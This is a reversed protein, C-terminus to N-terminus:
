SGTTRDLLGLDRARRESSRFIATAGLTVVAGTLLLAILITAGDPASTGTVATWVSGTGGISTPLYPAVAIRVGEVWWTVPNLLGIVQLPPPLVALPFVVGSVLFMAGAFAEPYSWSEQRTQLCVAGIFVGLAIIPVVGLVLSGILLPWDVTAPDIRLGLVIVAFVLAVLTGVAGILLRATGRGVITVLMTAPSVAMYKLMRYRERDDLITWAPGTIGAVLMAWLSSGLIVFTKASEDTAGGVIAVMAYILLLSAIPKVVSYIVFLTPDTWNAEVKWGLLMATRLHRVTDARGAGEARAPDFTATGLGALGDTTM